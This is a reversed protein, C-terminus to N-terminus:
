MLFRFCLEHGSLVVLSVRVHSCVWLFMLSTRLFWGRATIAGFSHRIDVMWTQYDSLLFWLLSHRRGFCKLSLVFLYCPSVFVEMHLEDRLKWASLQCHLVARFQDIALESNQIIIGIAWWVGYM